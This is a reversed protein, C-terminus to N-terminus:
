SVSLWLALGLIALLITLLVPWYRPNLVWEAANLIAMASLVLFIALGAVIGAISSLSFSRSAAPRDPERSQPAPNDPETM